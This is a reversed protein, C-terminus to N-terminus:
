AIDISTVEGQELIWGGSIGSKAWFNGSTDLEGITVGHTPDSAIAIQEVNGQELIWGGSIGSKAGARRRPWL